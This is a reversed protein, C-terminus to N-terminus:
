SAKDELKTPRLGLRIHFCPYDRETDYSLDGGATALLRRSVHLGIGSGQTGKTTFGRVFLRQQVDRPIPPGGNAVEVFCDTTTERVQVRIWRDSESLNQIADRANLVLNILVQCLPGPAIAVEFRPCNVDWVISESRVKAEILSWAQLWCDDLSAFADKDDMRSYALVSATLSRCRDMASRLAKYENFMRIQSSIYRQEFDGLHSFSSLIEGLIGLDLDLEAMHNALFFLEASSQKAILAQLAEIRAQLGKSLQPALLSKTFSAQYKEDIGFVLTSLLADDEQLKQFLSGQLINKLEHSLDGFLEGLQLLKDQEESRALDQLLRHREVMNKVRLRLEAAFIPKPLYDDVGLRLGALRDEESARATVLIVPIESLLHDQKMLKLVDEGSMEPMMMDLLVLQPRNRRMMDLGIRGSLATELHYGDLRLNGAIVECNTENDDIVLIHIDQHASLEAAKTADDAQPHSVSTLAIVQNQETQIYVEVQEATAEPITITFTSGVGPESHLHLQGGMLDVLRKVLTLGLGTGEYARRADGEVQAFEEFIRKHFAEPIGIGTDSVIIRLEHGSRQLELHVAHAKLPTRFKFANGILNRIITYIKDRDGLFDKQDVQFTSSYSILADRLKLGEALQDVDASLEELSFSQVHLKLDGGKAKALDLITNVQTTLSLALRLAKSLQLSSAETVAGFQGQRVLDIFGIIGNLPTRLEHSINHFFQTRAKEQVQLALTLKETQEFAHSFRQALIFSQLLLFVFLGFAISNDPQKWNLALTGIDNSTTACLTLTGLLFLFAGDRKARIARAVCLVTYTMYVFMILHFPPATWQWFRFPTLLIVSVLIGSIVLFVQGARESFEDPFLARTYHAFTPVAVYYSIYMAWLITTERHPAQVLEFYLGRGVFLARWSVLFCFVAFLLPARNSPRLGFFALHYLGLLLLCSALLVDTYRGLSEEHEVKAALGIRIKNYLGGYMFEPNAIRLTLVVPEGKSKFVPLQQPGEDDFGDRALLQDNAWLEYQLFARVPYIRFSQDAPLGELVLRFVGWAQPAFSRDACDMQQWYGPVVTCDPSRTLDPWGTSSYWFDWAEMLEQRQEWSSQALNLRAEAKASAGLCACCIIGLILLRRCLELM